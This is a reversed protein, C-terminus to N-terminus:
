SNTHLRVHDRVVAIIAERVIDEVSNRLEISGHGSGHESLRVDVSGALQDPAIAMIVAEPVVEADNLLEISGCISM